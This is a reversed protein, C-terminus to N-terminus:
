NRKRLTDSPREGFRRRYEVAFRGMHNFGLSMAIETVSNQADARELIERVKEFRAERLYRMPSMGRHDEFHKFLTRGPVGAAVVIDAVTIPHDLHSQIYDIARRVDRPLIAPAPAHLAHSYNHPHWLLLETVIFQEFARGTIAQHASVGRRTVDTHMLHAYRAINRGYGAALDIGPAFEVPPTFQTDPPRGLLVALQREIATRLLLVTLRAGGADVEIRSPGMSPYSFVFGRQPDCLFETGRVSTVLRGRLPMLIWYDVHRTSAQIAARAGYRTIGVYSQPLYLGTVSLELQRAEGRAVNFRFETRELWDVAQDLDRTRYGLMPGSIDIAPRFGWGPGAFAGPLSAM